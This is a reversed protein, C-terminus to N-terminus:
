PVTDGPTRAVKAIALGISRTQNGHIAPIISVAARLRLRLAVGKGAARTALGGALRFPGPFVVGVLCVTVIAQEAGLLEQIRHGGLALAVVVYSGLSKGARVTALGKPGVLFEGAVQQSMGPAETLHRGQHLGSTGFSPSYLILHIERTM